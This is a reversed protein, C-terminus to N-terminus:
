RRAGIANWLRRVWYSRVLSIVTYIATIKANQAGTLHFGFAPFVVANTIASVALGIAVNTAAELASGKRSQSV